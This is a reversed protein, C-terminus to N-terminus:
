ACPPVATGWPATVTRGGILDRDVQDHVRMEREVVAVPTCLADRAAPGQVQCQRQEAMHRPAICLNIDFSDLPALGFLPTLHDRDQEDNQDQHQKPGDGGPRVAPAPAVGRTAAKAKDDQDEEDQDQCSSQLYWHRTPPSDSAKAPISPFTWVGHSMLRAPSIFATATNTLRKNQPQIHPTQPRRNATGMM